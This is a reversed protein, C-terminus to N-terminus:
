SCFLERSDFNMVSYYKACSAVQLKDLKKDVYKRWIKDSLGWSGQSIPVCFEHWEKSYIKDEQLGYFYQEPSGASLDFEVFACFKEDIVSLDVIHSIAICPWNEYGLDDNNCWEAGNLEQIEQIERDVAQRNLQSQIIVIFFVVLILIAKKSM